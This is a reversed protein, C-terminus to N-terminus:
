KDSIRTVPLQITLELKRPPTESPHGHWAEFTPLDAPIYGSSRLWTGFLWDLAQQEVEATGIVDIEAVLTPGFSMVGFPEVPRSDDAVEVAIDYRCNVSDM